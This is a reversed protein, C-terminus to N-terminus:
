EKECARLAGGYGAVDGDRRDRVLTGTEPQNGPATAKHRRLWPNWPAVSTPRRRRPLRRCRPASQSTGLTLRLDGPERGGPCQLRSLRIPSRRCPARPLLLGPYRYPLPPRQEAGQPQNTALQRWPPEDFEVRRRVCPSSCRLGCCNISLSGVMISSSFSSSM